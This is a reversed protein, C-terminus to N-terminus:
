TCIWAAVLTRSHKRSGCGDEGDHAKKSETLPIWLKDARSQNFGQQVYVCMHVCECLDVSLFLCIYIYKKKEKIGTQCPSKIGLTRYWSPGIRTYNPPHVKAKKLLIM